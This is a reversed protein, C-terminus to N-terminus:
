EPLGSEVKKLIARAVTPNIKDVIILDETIADKFDDFRKYGANYLNQARVENLGFFEMYKAVMEGEPGSLQAAGEPSPPSSISVDTSEAPEPPPPAPEPPVYKLDELYEEIDSRVVTTGAMKDTYKQRPDSTLGTGLYIDIILFVMMIIGLIFFSFMSGILIGGLKALNRMLGKGFTMPGETSEVRLGLLRKGLTGGSKTDMIIFYLASIIVTLLSILIILMIFAGVSFVATPDIGEVTQWAMALAILVIINMAIFQIVFIVVLDIVFAIGRKIWHDKTLQNGLIYNIDNAM